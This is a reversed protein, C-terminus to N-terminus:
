RTGAANAPTAGDAQKAAAAAQQQVLLAMARDIPIRVIGRGRDVWAYAHLLRSKEAHFAPFDREPAAQLRPGGEIAPPARTREDAQHAPEGRVLLWAVLLAAIVVGIIAGAGLAVGGLRPQDPEYGQRRALDAAEAM